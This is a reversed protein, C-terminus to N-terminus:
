VVFRASRPGLAMLGRTTSTSFPRVMSSREVDRNQVNCLEKRTTVTHMLSKPSATRASMRVHTGPKPPRCSVLGAYSSALKTNPKTFNLSRRVQSSLTTPADIMLVYCHSTRVITFRSISSSSKELRSARAQNRSSVISIRAYTITRALLIEHEKFKVSIPSTPLRRKEREENESLM